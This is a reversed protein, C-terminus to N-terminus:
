PINVPGAQPPQYVTPGVLERFAVTVAMFSIPVTVLLGLFLCIFGLFNLGVIALALLFFGFLDNLVLRRSAEMAPWFEMKKEIIFLPAFLYLALVFIGPIILFLAAISVLIATLGVTLIGAAWYKFGDFLDSIQPRAGAMVRLCVLFFGPVLAGALVASGLFPVLAGAALLLAIYILALAIFIELHSRVLNWGQGIWRGPTAQVFVTEM